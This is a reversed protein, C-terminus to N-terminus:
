NSKLLCNIVARAQMIATLTLAFLLFTNNNNNFIIFIINKILRQYQLKDFKNKFVYFCYSFFRNRVRMQIASSKHFKGDSIKTGCLKVAQCGRVPQFYWKDLVIPSKSLSSFSCSSSSAISFKKLASTKLDNLLSNKLFKSNNNEHRSTGLVSASYGLAISEIDTQDNCCNVNM